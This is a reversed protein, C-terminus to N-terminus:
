IINAISIREQNKTKGIGTPSGGSSGSGNGVANGTSSTGPAAGPELKVLPPLTTNPPPQPTAHAAAWPGASTPATPTTSGSALGRILGELREWGGWDRAEEESLGTRAELSFLTGAGGRSSNAAAANDKPSAAADVPRLTWPAATQATQADREGGAWVWGTEMAAQLDASVYALLEEDRFLADQLPNPPPRGPIPAPTQPTRALYTAYETKKGSLVTTFLALFRGYAAVSDRRPGLAALARICASAADLHGVLLLFLACRFMHAALLATAGDPFQPTTRTLLAATELATHTCQEIAALRVDPPCAPSLNHRHLLMRANLLYILPNLLHPSLPVQSSPDCAVPFTRMCAAFHQDFTSLRTPAIVSAAVLTKQLAGYSRVVNILALLSHTLPEAGQPVTMGNDHIYADDVGAPLSVDCDSDDILLPRGSDVALSRELIYICWWTRRRMEGEIVPWPGCESHLGLDQAVRVANGVCTWAASKLNMETLCMGQLFLARADDLVFHNNWPDMVRRSLNLLEAARYSRDVPADPTFLSGLALVAFFTSLFSLPVNQLNGPRYMEDIGQEFVRLHLIPFMSHTSSLYSDLLRKTTAIPPLEPRQVDFLSSVVAQRFPAPPKWAGKSFGLLNARARSMDHIPAPRKRRRPEAGVAPLHLPLPMHEMNEAVDEMPGDKESILRRLTSNERRIRENQKELDQVQKISSM